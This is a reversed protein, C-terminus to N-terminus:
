KIPFAILIVIVATVKPPLPNFFEASPIFCTPTVIPFYTASCPIRATAHLIPFDNTEFYIFDM